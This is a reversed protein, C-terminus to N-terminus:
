SIAITGNIKPITSSNLCIPNGLLNQGTTPTTNPMTIPMTYILGASIVFPMNTPALRPNLATPSYLPVLFVLSINVSYVRPSIGPIKKTQLDHYYEETTSGTIYNMDVNFYDAYKELIELNPTRENNEYMGIASRTVNLKRALEDQTLNERVRLSRLIDGLKAM